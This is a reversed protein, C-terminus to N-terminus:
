KFFIILFMVLNIEVRKNLNVFNSHKQSYLWTKFQPDFLSSLRHLNVLTSAKNTPPHILGPKPVAMSLEFVSM